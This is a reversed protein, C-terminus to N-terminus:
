SRKGIWNLPEVWTCSANLLHFIQLKYKISNNTLTLSPKHVILNLYMSCLLHTSGNCQNWHWRLDYYIYYIQISRWFAFSLEHINRTLLPGDMFYHILVNNAGALWEQITRETTKSRWQAISQRKLSENMRSMRWSRLLLWSYIQISLHSWVLFFMPNSMLPRLPWSWWWSNTQGAM